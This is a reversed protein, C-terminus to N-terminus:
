KFIHLFARCYSNTEVFELVLYKNKYPVVIKDFPNVYIKKAKVVQVKQKLDFANVIEKKSVFTRVRNFKILDKVKDEDIIYFSISYRDGDEPIELLNLDISQLLIVM